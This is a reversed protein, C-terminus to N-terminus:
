PKEVNDKFGDVVAKPGHTRWEKEVDETIGMMSDYHYVARARDELSNSEDYVFKTLLSFTVNEKKTFAGDSGRDFIAQLKPSVKRELAAKWAANDLCKFGSIAAVKGKYRDSPM